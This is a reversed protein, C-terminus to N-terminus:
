AEEFKVTGALHWDWPAAGVLSISGVNPLTISGGFVSFGSADFKGSKTLSKAIPLRVWVPIATSAAVTGTQATTEVLTVHVKVNDWYTIWGELTAGGSGVTLSVTFWADRLDEDAASPPKLKKLQEAVENLVENPITFSM